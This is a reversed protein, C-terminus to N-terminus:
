RNSATALITGGAAVDYKLWKSVTMSKISLTLLIEMNPLLGLVFKKGV